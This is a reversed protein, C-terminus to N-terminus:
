RLTIDGDLLDGGVAFLAHGDLARCRIWFHDPKSKVGSDIVAVDVDVPEQHLFGRASIRATNGKFSASPIKEVTVAVDPYGDGPSLAPVGDVHIGEAGFVLRGSGKKGDARYSLEFSASGVGHDTVFEFKGRGDIRNGALAMALAVAVGIGVVGILKKVGM